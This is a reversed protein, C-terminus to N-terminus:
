DEQLPDESALSEARRTMRRVEERVIREVLPPLNQDLWDKVQPRLADRVMQELIRDSDSKPRTDGFEEAQASRALQALASTAVDEAQQSVLPERGGSSPAAAAAAAPAAPPPESPRPAPEPEPEPDSDLLPEPTPEPDPEPDPEPEPESEAALRLPPADDDALGNSGDLAEEPEPKLELGLDDDDSDLSGSGSGNLGRGESDAGFFSDEDDGVDAFADEVGTDGDGGDDDALGGDDAVEETLDLVEDDDDDDAIGRDPDDLDTDSAKSGSAGAADSDESIIKRISSLIEEMSPEDGGAKKDAM